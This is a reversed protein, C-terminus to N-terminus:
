QLQSSIAEPLRVEFGQNSEASMLREHNSHVRQRTVDQNQQGLSTELGLISRRGEAPAPMRRLMRLLPSSGGGQREVHEGGLGTGEITEEPPTDSEHNTESRRLM